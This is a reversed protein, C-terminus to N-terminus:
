NRSRGEVAFHRHDIEHGLNELQRDLREAVSAIQGIGLTDLERFFDATQLDLDGM